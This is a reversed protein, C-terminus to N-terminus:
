ETMDETNKEIIPRPVHIGTIDKYGNNDMKVKVKLCEMLITLGKRMCKQVVSKVVEYFQDNDDETPPLKSYYENYDGEEKNVPIRQHDQIGRMGM